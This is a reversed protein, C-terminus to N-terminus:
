SSATLGGDVVLCAGNVYGSEPRVLFSVAAAIEEPRAIRGAPIWPLIAAMAGPRADEQVGMATDVYGPCVANVTIGHGGWEAALSRTYGVVAHKSAAYTSSLAAGLLGQVSAINVVRGYGRERMGPLLERCTLFVSRTNTHVVRLWEDDDVEDVRHFPGGLGANNVLISVRGLRERVASLARRVAEPDSVDCPTALCSGDRSLAEAAEAAGDADVDLLAVAHGESVLRAATARGIGRAAGTVVAVREDM